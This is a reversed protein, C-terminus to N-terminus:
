GRDKGLFRGAFGMLLIIGFAITIIQNWGPITFYGYVGISIVTTALVGTWLGKKFAMYIAIAAMLLIFLTIEGHISQPELAPNREFM